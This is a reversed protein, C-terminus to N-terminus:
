RKAKWQGYVVEKKKHKNVAAKADTLRLYADKSATNQQQVVQGQKQAFVESLVHVNQAALDFVFLTGFFVSFSPYKKLNYDVSCDKTDKLMQFLLGFDKTKNVAELVKM